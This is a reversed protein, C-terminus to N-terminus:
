KSNAEHDRRHEQAWREHTEKFEAEHVPCLAVWRERDGLEYQCGCKLKATKM